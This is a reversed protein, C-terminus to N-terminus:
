ASAKEKIFRSLEHIQEISFHSRLMKLHRQTVADPDELLLNTYAVALAVFGPDAPLSSSDGPITFNLQKGTQREITEAVAALLAQPLLSAATLVTDM